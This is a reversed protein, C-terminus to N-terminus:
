AVLEVPHTTSLNTEEPLITLDMNAEAQLTLMSKRLAAAMRTAKQEKSLSPDKQVNRLDALAQGRAYDFLMAKITHEATGKIDLSGAFAEPALKGLDVSFAVLVKTM